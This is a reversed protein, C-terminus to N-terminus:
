ALWQLILKLQMALNEGCIRISNKIHCGHLNVRFIFSCNMHSSCDHLLNIAVKTCSFVSYFISLNILYNCVQKMKRCWIIVGNNRTIDRLYYIVTTTATVFM